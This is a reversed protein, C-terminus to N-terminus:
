FSVTEIRFVLRSSGLWIGLGGVFAAVVFGLLFLYIRGRWSFRTWLFVTLATAFCLASTMLIGFGAKDVTLIYAVLPEYLEDGM